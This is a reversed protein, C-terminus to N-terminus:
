SAYDVGPILWASHLWRTRWKGRLGHEVVAKRTTLAHIVNGDAYIGQHSPHQHGDFKFLLLAGNIPEDIQICHSKVLELLYPDPLRGYDASDKIGVLQPLDLGARRACYEIYGVCDVGGANRGQHIWPTGILSRAEKVLRSAPIM